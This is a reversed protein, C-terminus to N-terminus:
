SVQRTKPEFSMDGAAEEQIQFLSIPDIIGPPLELVDMGEGRSLPDRHRLMTKKVEVRGMAFYHLGVVEDWARIAEPALKLDWAAKWIIARESRRYEFSCGEGEAANWLLLCALKPMCKAASAARKLLAWIKDVRTDRHLLESTLSLFRLRHWIGSLQCQLLFVSADIMFAVSLHELFEMKAGKVAAAKSLEGDEYKSPLREPLAVMDPVEMGRLHRICRENFDEFVSIRKLRPLSITKIFCINEYDQEVQDGFTWARWPEYILEELRPLAELLQKLSRLPIRRRCQRRLVFKTVVEVKPLPRTFMWDCRQEWIRNLSTEDIFRNWGQFLSSSKKKLPLRLVDPSMCINSPVTACGGNYWHPFWHYGDSPSQMSLELTLNKREEWGRLMDYLREIARTITRTNMVVDETTERAWCEWCNYKRLEINLWIYRIHQRQRPVVDKVFADLKDQNCLRIHSFKRSEIWFQWEKSVTAYRLSDEWEAIEKLIEARVDHCLVQWGQLVPKKSKRLHSQGRSM